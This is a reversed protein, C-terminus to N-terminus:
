TRNAALGRSHCQRRLHSKVSSLLMVRKCSCKCSLHGNLKIFSNLEHSVVAGDILQGFAKRSGDFIFYKIVDDKGLIVDNDPLGNQDDSEVSYFVDEQFVQRSKDHRAKKAGRTSKSVATPYQRVQSSLLGILEKKEKELRAELNQHSMRMEKMEKKMKKMKRYAEYDSGGDSSYDIFDYDSSDNIFNVDDTNESYSYSMNTTTENAKYTQQVSEELSQGLAIM